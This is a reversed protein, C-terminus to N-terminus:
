KQPASANEQSPAAEKVAAEKLPKVEEIALRTPLPTVKLVVDERM